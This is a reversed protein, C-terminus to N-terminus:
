QLSNARVPSKAQSAIRDVRNKSGKPRGRRKEVSVGSQLRELVQIAAELDSRRHVLADVAKALSVQPEAERQPKETQHKYRALEISVQLDREDFPKVIYGQPRTVKVRDLTTPDAYATLYIVPIRFRDKLLQATEVGDMKGDLRIDM